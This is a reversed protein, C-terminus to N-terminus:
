GGGQACNSEVAPLPLGLRQAARFVSARSYANGGGRYVRVVTKVSRGSEVAIRERDPGVLSVTTM